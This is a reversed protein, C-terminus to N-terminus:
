RVPPRELAACMLTDSRWVRTGSPIAHKNVPLTAAARDLPQPGFDFPSHRDAVQCRLPLPRACDDPVACTLLEYLDPRSHSSCPFHPHGVRVFFILLLLLTKPEPM